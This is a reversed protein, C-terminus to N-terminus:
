CLPYILLVAVLVQALFVACYLYDKDPIRIRNFFLLSILWTPTTDHQNILIMTVLLIPCVLFLYIPFAASGITPCCGDGVIQMYLGGACCLWTCYPKSTPMAVKISCHRMAISNSGDVSSGDLTYSLTTTFQGLLLAM